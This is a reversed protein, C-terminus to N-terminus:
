LFKLILYFLISLTIIGCFLYNRKTKNIVCEYLSQIYVILILVFCAQSNFIANASMSWRSLVFLCLLAFLSNAGINMYDKLKKHQLKILDYLKFPYMVIVYFAILWYENFALNMVVFTGYYGFSFTIM